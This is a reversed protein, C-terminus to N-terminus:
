NDFDCSGMSAVYAADSVATMKKFAALYIPKGPKIWTPKGDMYVLSILESREMAFLVADDGKFLTSHKIMDFHLVPNVCM